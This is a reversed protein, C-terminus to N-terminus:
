RRRLWTPRHPGRSIEPVDLNAFGWERCARAGETALGTGQADVALRWGLEVCPAPPADDVRRLGIMGVLRGDAKREAAFFGFGDQAIQANARDMLADSGARDLVGGLWDGVRPDGNVAAFPARDAERFPRLILRGTEIM